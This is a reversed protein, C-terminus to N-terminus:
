YEPFNYDFDGDTYIEERYVFWGGERYCTKFSFKTLRVHAEYRKGMVTRYGDEIYTSFHPDTLALEMVAPPMLKTLPTHDGVILIGDCEHVDYDKSQLSLRHLTYESYNGSMKPRGDKCFKTKSFGRMM